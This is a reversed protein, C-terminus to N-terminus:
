PPPGSASGACSMSRHCSEIVSCYILGTLLPCSLEGTVVAVMAEDLLALGEEVRVQEIRVRGQAQRGFAILDPEGFREGIEVVGAATCYAAEYDGTGVHQLLVPVLLYGREVCDREERELLRQARSFWGTARALEGVDALCLGLRFACRVACLTAGADLYGRHARDLAREGYDNRGLLYASIALLELDEPRSPVAQDALSLSRYADLWARRRYAERGRELEDM